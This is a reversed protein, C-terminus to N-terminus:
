QPYPRHPAHHVGAAAAYFCRRSCLKLISDTSLCSLRQFSVSDPPNVEDDSPMSLIASIQGGSFASFLGAPRGAKGSPSTIRQAPDPVHLITCM